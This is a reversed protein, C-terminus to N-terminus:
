RGSGASCTPAALVADRINMCVEWNTLTTAVGDNLFYASAAASDLNLETNTDGNAAPAAGPAWVDSGAIADGAGTYVEKVMALMGPPDGTLDGHLPCARTADCSDRLDHAWGTALLADCRTITNSYSGTVGEDTSDAPTYKCTAAPTATADFTCAAVDDTSEVTPNTRALINDPGSLKPGNTECSDVDPNAIANCGVYIPRCTAEDDGDDGCADNSTNDVCPTYYCGPVDECAATQTAEDPTGTTLDVEACKDTHLHLKDILAVVETFPCELRCVDSVQNVENNVHIAGTVCAVARSNDAEECHVMQDAVSGGNADASNAIPTCATCSGQVPRAQASSDADDSTVDAGFYGIAGGCGGDTLDADRLLPPVENDCCVCTNGVGPAPVDVCASNTGWCPGQGDDGGGGDDAENFGLPGVGGPTGVACGDDDTCCDWTTCTDGACPRDLDATDRITMGKSCSDGAFATSEVFTFGDGAEPEGTVDSCKAQSCGTYVFASLVTQGTTQACTVMGANNAYTCGNSTPCDEPQQTRDWAPWTSCDATGDSGYVSADVTGTCTATGWWNDSDSSADAPDNGQFCTVDGLLITTVTAADSADGVTVYGPPAPAATCQNINCGVPNPAAPDDSVMITLEANEALCKVGDDATGPFGDPGNIDVGDDATNPLEDPGVGAHHTDACTHLTSCAISGTQLGTCTMGAIDYGDGNSQPMVCTMGEAGTVTFKTTPVAETAEDADGSCTISAARTFTCGDDEPCNGQSNDNIFAEITACDVTDDSTRQGTCTAALEATGATVTMGAPFTWGDAAEVTMTNFDSVTTETGALGNINIGMAASPNSASFPTCRNEECATGDFAAAPEILFGTCTNCATAADGGLCPDTDSDLGSFGACYFHEAATCDDATKAVCCGNTAVDGDQSITRDAVDVSGLPCNYTECTPIECCADFNAQETLACTAGSPCATDATNDIPVAASNTGVGLACAAADVAPVSGDGAPDGCTQAHAVSALSAALVLRNLFTMM